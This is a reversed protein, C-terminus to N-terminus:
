RPKPVPQPIPGHWYDGRDLTQGLMRSRAVAADEAEPISPYAPFQQQSRIANLIADEEPLEQGGWMSPINTWQGQNLNPDQVTITRETSVSGDTNEVIPRGERTYGKIGMIM